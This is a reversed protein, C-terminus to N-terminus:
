GAASVQGCHDPRTAASGYGPPSAYERRSGSTSNFFSSLWNIADGSGAGRYNIMVHPPSDNASESLESNSVLLFLARPV